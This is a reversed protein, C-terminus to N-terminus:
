LIKTIMENAIPTLTYRGKKPTEIYGGEILEKLLNNVKVKSCGVNSALEEQNLPCIKIGDVDVLHNNIVLLLIMKDNIFESIKDMNAM